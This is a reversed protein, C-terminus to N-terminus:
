NCDELLSSKLFYLVKSYYSIQEDFGSIFTSEESSYDGSVIKHATNRLAMINSISLCVVEKHSYTRSSSIAPINSNKIADSLDGQPFENNFRLQEATIDIYQNLTDYVEGLYEHMYIFSNDKINWHLIQINRQAVTLDWLLM